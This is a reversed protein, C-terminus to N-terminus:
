TSIQFNKNINVSKAGIELHNNIKTLFEQFFVNLLLFTSILVRSIGHAFIKRLLQSNLHINKFTIRNHIQLSLPLESQEIALM